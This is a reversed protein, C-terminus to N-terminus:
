ILEPLPKKLYIKDASIIEGFLLFLSIYSCKIITFDEGLIKHPNLHTSWGRSNVTHESTKIKEFPNGWEATSSYNVKYYVPLYQNETLDNFEWTM